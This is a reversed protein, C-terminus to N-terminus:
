SVGMFHFHNCLKSIVFGNFLFFTSYHYCCTFSGVKLMLRFM